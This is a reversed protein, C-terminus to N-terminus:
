LTLRKGFKHGIYMAFVGILVISISNLVFFKYLGQSLLEYLYYSWGSFTTISGCFGVGIMLKYKESIDLSNIFGLCFCGIINVVFMEDIQWRSLAGPIAGISILLFINKKIDLRM